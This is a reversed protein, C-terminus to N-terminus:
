IREFDRGLLHHILKRTNPSVTPSYKQINGALVPM